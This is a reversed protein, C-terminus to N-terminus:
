LIQIEDDFRVIIEVLPPYIYKSVKSFLAM